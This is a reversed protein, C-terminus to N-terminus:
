DQKEESNLMEEPFTHIHDKAIMKKLRYPAPYFFWELLTCIRLYYPANNLYLERRAVKLYKLYNVTDKNYDRYQDDAEPPREPPIFLCTRDRAEEFNENVMYNWTLKLSSLTSNRRYIDVRLEYAKSVLFYDKVTPTMESEKLKKEGM